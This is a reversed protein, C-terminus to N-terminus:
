SEGNESEHKKRAYEQKKMEERGHVFKAIVELTADINIPKAMHADMGMALSKRKDEEFANASMGVIPINSLEREPLQRIARTASYGDMRPMQIDMVVCDFPEKAEQLKQLAVDGDEAEEVLLGSEEFLMKAIERNLENDEVLLLRKGALERVARSVAGEQVQEGQQQRGDLIQFPLRILFESGKGQQSHVEITGNMIDVIKKTIALGLGTGKIKSVTSTKEREFPLFMRSIFEPAIGIGTDKVRFEYLAVRNGLSDEQRVSVQIRGGEPTFKIANGIINMLIQCVKMEDCFIQRNRINEMDLTFQLQKEEMREATMQAVHEMLRDISCDGEEMNMRGSEIRSIDLVNDLTELLSVSADQIKLLYDKVNEERDEIHRLALDTYGMIANMPTRIDHSMNTLFLNKAEDAKEAQRLASELILNKKEEQRMVNEVSRIALVVSEPVGNKRDNVTFIAARRELSGDPLRRAYRYEVSSENMLAEKLAEPRLLSQVESKDGVNLQESLVREELLELYSGTFDAQEPYILRYRDEDLDVLFVERYVQLTNELVQRILEHDKIRDQYHKEKRLNDQWKETVDSVFVFFINGYVQSKLMHGFDEVWRVEGDKRIIRYEVYDMKRTSSAVQRIISEEVRELDEPHVMGRFSNGTLECFEEMTKCGYLYLVEANAYIIEEEGEAYYIFFGGPMGAGIEEVNLSRIEEM